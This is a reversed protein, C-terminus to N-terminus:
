AGHFPSRLMHDIINRLLKLFAEISYRAVDKNPEIYIKPSKLYCIEHIMFSTNELFNFNYVTIDSIFNLMLYCHLKLDLKFVNVSKRLSMMCDPAIPQNARVRPATLIFSNM